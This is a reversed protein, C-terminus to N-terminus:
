SAAAANIWCFRAMAACPKPYWRCPIRRATWPRPTSNSTNWTRWGPEPELLWPWAREMNCWRSATTRSFLRGLGGTALVVARALHVSPEGSSDVGLVGLCRHDRALLELARFGQQLNVQEKQEIASRLTQAMALGTGDGMAPIVRARSHAGELTVRFGGQPKQDFPMGLDALEQVRQIGENVLVGVADADCAGAGAALTDRLHMLPSDGPETAAAVGGQALATNSNLVHDRTLITVSGHGSAKLACFLGAVGSGIILYDSQHTRV